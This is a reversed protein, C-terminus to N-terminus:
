DERCNAVNFALEIYDELGDYSYTRASVVNRDKYDVFVWAEIDDIHYEIDYESFIFIDTIGFDILAKLQVLSINKDLWAVNQSSPDTHSEICEITYNKVDALYNWKALTPQYLQNDSLIMDIGKYKRRRKSLGNMHEKHENVMHTYRPNHISLMNSNM